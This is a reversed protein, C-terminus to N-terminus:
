LEVGSKTQLTGTEIQKASLLSLLGATEKRTLDIHNEVGGIFHLKVGEGLHPEIYTVADLNIM